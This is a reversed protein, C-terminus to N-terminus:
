EANVGFEANDGAVVVADLSIDESAPRPNPMENLAQTVLTSWGVTESPRFPLVFDNSSELNRWRAIINAEDVSSHDIQPIGQELYRNWCQRARTGM